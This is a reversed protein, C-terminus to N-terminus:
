GECLLVTKCSDTGIHMKNAWDSVGLGVGRIAPALWRACGVAEFPTLLIVTTGNWNYEKAAHITKNGYRKSETQPPHEQIGQVNWVAAGRRQCTRVSVGCGPIGDSDICFWIRNSRHCARTEIIQEGMWARGVGSNAPGVVSCM